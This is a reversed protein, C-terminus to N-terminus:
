GVFADVRASLDMRAAWSRLYDLDLTDRHADVLALVDDLDRPRNADLKMLVLDEVTAVPISAEGVSVRTARRLVCASFADDAFLVDISVGLGAQADPPSRFRLLGGPSFKRVEAEDWSLGARGACSLLDDLRGAPVSVLFDVDRTLRARARLVVALGGILAFPQGFAELAQLAVTMPAFHIM